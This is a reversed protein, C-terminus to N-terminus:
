TCTPLMMASRGASARPSPRADALQYYAMAFPDAMMATRLTAHDREPAVLAATRFFPVTGRARDQFLRMLTAGLVGPGACCVCAAGHPVGALSRSLASLRVVHAWDADHVVAHAPTGSELVILATDGQADRTALSAPDILDLPVRDPPM